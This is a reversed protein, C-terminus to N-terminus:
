SAELMADIEHLIAWWTPRSHILMPFVQRVVGEKDILYATTRKYPKTKKYGIDAAIKFPVKGDFSKYIKKHKELDDDEQAVAIVVTDRKEFEDYM